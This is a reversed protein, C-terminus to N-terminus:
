KGAVFVFDRRSPLSGYTFPQQRNNTAELVDDRVFDFLRRVDRGPVKLQNVFARAVPSNVGDGVVAAQGEKASYVVLSGPETEPPAALGRDLSGRLALTQHMQAKFPNNRCADLIIIRLAKAGGIAEAFDEYSVTEHKVDRSDALKADVPILYNVRNVEIGHGAFYVLAWDASDAKARFSQLAKLMGDHDLDTLEVTDFGAQRMADAVLKADRRPNPLAQVLSSTYGSNGIVLAVRREAPIAPIVPQPPSTQPALQAQADAPIAPTALQAQAEAPIAPTVLHAQADAPIAPTVPQPPSTQPALQAQAPTAGPRNPTLLAQVRERGERAITDNPDLGIAQDYDAVAPALEGHLELIAARYAYGRAYKPSLTLAKNLDAMARDFDGKKGYAYGRHSYPNVYNPNLQIAQNFDAIARNYDGKESYALGRGDYAAVSKRELRITENFDAIARDYDHKGVLYAIGRDTYQEEYPNLRIAKDYDAIARDYDGKDKYAHGRGSYAFHLKLAL